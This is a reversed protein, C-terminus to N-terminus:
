FWATTVFNSYIVDDTIKRQLKRVRAFHAFLHEELENLTESNDEEFAVFMLVVQWCGAEHVKGEVGVM